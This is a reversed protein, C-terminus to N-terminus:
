PEGASPGGGRSALIQEVRELLVGPAFPKSLFGATATSIGRRVAEDETYGSMYLVPLEPREERLRRVVESGPMEPMVVDTLLLDIRATNGAALRLAEPGSAAVLVTYGSRELIRRALQRVAPEDEVLLITRSQGGTAARPEPRRSGGDDEAETAAEAQPLLVRFCSGQGVRSDVTVHGGSQTVIGFVMALGLGTGHGKAKTTFFPEFLRPLDDAAIGPGTDEVELCVCRGAPMRGVPEDLSWPRVRLRLEGGLPMADRANVVLNMIVQELQGPDALVTCDGPPTEVSLAIDEPVLRRLMREMGRSLEALDVTRMRMVQHRSFALLRRVLDAAREAAHRIQELDGHMESGESVDELLLGVHGTIATLLNNFDHAVGGALRGVAEMKQAQQLQRETSRLREETLRRAQRQEADEIERALAPALRALDDKLVYDHAGAKMLAVAKDEGVMGSVVIFPLDMELRQVVALAHDATFGPLRYDALLADWREARLRDELSALDDVRILDIGRDMGRLARRVLLEDDESDEVMLIRLPESM